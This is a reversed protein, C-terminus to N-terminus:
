FEGREEGWSQENIFKRLTKEIKSLIWIGIDMLYWQPCKEDRLEWTQSNSGFNEQKHNQRDAMQEKKNERFGEM